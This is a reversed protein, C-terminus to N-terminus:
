YSGNCNWWPNLVNGGVNTKVKHDGFPAGGLWTVTGYTIVAVQQSSGGSATKPTPGNVNKWGYTSAAWTSRTANTVKFGVDWTVYVTESLTAVLLGANTKINVGCTVVKSISSPTLPSRLDVTANSFIEVICPTNPSKSSQCKGVENLFFNFKSNRFKSQKEAAVSRAHVVLSQPFLGFLLFLAFLVSLMKRKM